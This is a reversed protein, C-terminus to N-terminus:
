SFYALNNEIRKYLIVLFYDSVENDRLKFKANKLIIVKKYNNVIKTSKKYNNVNKTGQTSKIGKNNFSLM